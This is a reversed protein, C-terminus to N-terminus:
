GGSDSFARTVYIAPIAYRLALPIIVDRRTQFLPDSAFFIGGAGQQALRAFAAEFDSATSTNVVILNLGLAGAAAQVDTADTESDRGHPNVFYGVLKVAPTLAHLLELRKTHLV